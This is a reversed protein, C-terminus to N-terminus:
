QCYESHINARQKENLVEETDITFSTHLVALYIFIRQLSIDALKFISLERTLDPHKITNSNNGKRDEKKLLCVSTLM